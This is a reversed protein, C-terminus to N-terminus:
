QSRQLDYLEDRFDLVLKANVKRILIKLIGTEAGNGAQRFQSGIPRLLWGLLSLSGNLLRFRTSDLTSGLYQTDRWRGTTRLLRLATLVWM